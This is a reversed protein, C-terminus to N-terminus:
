VVSKRDRNGLYNTVYMVTNNPAIAMGEGAPLAGGPGNGAARATGVANTVPDIPNVNDKNYNAVFVQTASAGARPLTDTFNVTAAGVVTGVAAYPGGSTTSRDIEYGGTAPSTAATWAVAVNNDVPDTCVGPTATLATPANLTGTAFSSGPNQSTAGWAAIGTAVQTTGLVVLLAATATALWVARSGRARALRGVAGDPRGSDPM